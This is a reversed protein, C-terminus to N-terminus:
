AAERRARAIAGNLVARWCRPCLDHGSSWKMGRSGRYLARHHGCRRCLKKKAKCAKQSDDRMSM